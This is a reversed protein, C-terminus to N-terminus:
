ADAAEQSRHHYRIETGPRYRGLFDLRHPEEALTLLFGTVPGPIEHWEGDGTEVVVRWDAPDPEEPLLYYVTGDEEGGWEILGGPRPHFPFPYRDPDTLHLDSKGGSRPWLRELEEPTGDVPRSMGLFGDFAGPGYLDLFSTYDAPLRVGLHEEAAGWLRPRAWGWCAPEGLLEKLRELATAM